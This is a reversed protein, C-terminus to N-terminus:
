TKMIFAVEYYSPRNNVSSPSGTGTSGISLDHSHSGSSTMDYSTGSTDQGSEGSGSTADEDAIGMDVSHDHNGVTDTSGSHQHNPMTTTSMTWYNQGGRSGTEEGSSTAKVFRDRLDPTGNNGDCLVFGEPIDALAGSWIVAMGAPTGQGEEVFGGIM